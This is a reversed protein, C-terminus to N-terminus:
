SVENIIDENDTDENDTDKPIFLFSGITLSQM